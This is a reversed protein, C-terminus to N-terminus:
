FRSIKKTNKVQSRKKNVVYLGLIVLFGGFVYWITIGENLILYSAFTSIVPTFYLYISVESAQRVELAAYWFTYAIVTPFCALFLVAFWGQLSM